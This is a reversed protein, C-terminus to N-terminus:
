KAFLTIKIFSCLICILELLGLFGFLPYFFSVFGSFGVSSAALAAICVAFSLIKCNVGYKKEVWKVAGFLNGAATTIIASVLLLMYFIRVLDSNNRLAYLMPIQMDLAEKPVSLVLCLIGGLFSIAFGTVAACCLPIKGKLMSKDLATIVSIASIMNYSVYVVASLAPNMKVAFTTSAMDAFYFIFVLGACILIVPTLLGNVFVVGKEDFLICIFILASLIFAGLYYNMDFSEYVVAGFGSVMAFFLVFLFIGTIHEMICGLTEGMTEYLFETYTNINRKKLIVLVAYIFFAFLFATLVLCSKWTDGYVLYFDLVERGSAFGAGVILGILVGSVKLIECM